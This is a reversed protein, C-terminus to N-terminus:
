YDNYLTKNFNTLEKIKDKLNNVINIDYNIRNITCDYLFINKIHHNYKLLDVILDIDKFSEDSIELKKISKNFYLSECLLYLDYRKDAENISFKNNFLYLEELNKNFELSKYILFWYNYPTCNRNIRIKKISTNYKLMESLSKIEKKNMKYINITLEQISNNYKLVNFLESCDHNFEKIKNVTDNVYLSNISTNVKLMDCLSYYETNNLINLNTDLLKLSNNHELVKFISSLDYHNNNLNDENNDQQKISFFEGNISQSFIGREYYPELKNYMELQRNFHPNDIYLEQLSSNNKLYKGLKYINNIKNHSLDIKKIINNNLTYKLPTIDNINNHSLDLIKLSINNILVDKLPSLDTINNYSLDIKKIINNNLIYKLPTIDNINNMSLNLIKLNTNNQLSSCLIKLNNDDILHNNITIDILNTNLSFYNFINNQLRYDYQYYTHNYISLKTIINNYKKYNYKLANNVLTEYEYNNYNDTDNYNFIIVLRDNNFKNDILQYLVYKNFIVEQQSRTNFM